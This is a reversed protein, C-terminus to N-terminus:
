HAGPADCQFADSLGQDTQFNFTGFNDIEGRGDGVYVYDDFGDANTTLNFDSRLNALRGGSISHAGSLGNGVINIM